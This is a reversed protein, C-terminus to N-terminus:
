RSASIGAEVKVQHKLAPNWGETCDWALATNLGAQQEAGCVM